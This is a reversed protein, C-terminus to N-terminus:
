VANVLVTASGTTASTTINKSMAARPRASAHNTVTHAAAPSDPRRTQSAARTAPEGIRMKWANVLKSARAVAKAVPAM